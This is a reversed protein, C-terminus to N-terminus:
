NSRPEMVDVSTAVRELIGTRRAALRALIGIAFGLDGGSLIVIGKVFTTSLGAEVTSLLIPATGVLMFCIPTELLSM